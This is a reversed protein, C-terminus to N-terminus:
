FMNFPKKFAYYDEYTGFVQEFNRERVFKCLNKNVQRLVYTLELSLTFANVYIGNKM